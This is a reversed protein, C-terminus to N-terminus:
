SFRRIARYQINRRRLRSASVANIDAISEVGDISDTDDYNIPGWSESTVLPLEREVAWEAWADIMAELSELWRERDGYYM